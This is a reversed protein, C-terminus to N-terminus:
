RLELKVLHIDRELLSTEVQQVLSLVIAVLEIRQLDSQPERGVSRDRDVLPVEGTEALGELIGIEPAGIGM